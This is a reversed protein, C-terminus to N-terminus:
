NKMEGSQVCGLSMISRGTLSENHRELLSLIEAERQARVSPAVTGTSFSRHKPLSVLLSDRFSIHSSALFSM